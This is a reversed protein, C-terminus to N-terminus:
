ADPGLYRAVQERLESIKFPKSYYVDCGADIARQRDNPLIEVSTVIIPVGSLAADHRVLRIIEWGDLDGPLRLDLLILDPQLDQAMAWGSLGDYACFVTYGRTDLAAKIMQANSLADEIVLVTAM